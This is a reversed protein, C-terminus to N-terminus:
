VGDPDGSPEAPTSAPPRGDLWDALQHLDTITLTPPELDTPWIRGSRNVWIAEIGLRRAGEVDLYPEDGLHLCEGPACGALALALSFVTPDPKAAGARAATVHHHFVGSLPTLEPDANGNTISVLLYDAALRRLVPEADAFPAIRNRQAMFVTLAEAALRDALEAPYELETLLTAISLRRILGLDHALEPREIMLRGRHERLSLRDHRDTLRPARAGLWDLVAEEAARIVPECPWVTDDLDFTILRFRPHPM